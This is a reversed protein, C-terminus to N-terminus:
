AAPGPGRPRPTRGSATGPGPDTSPTPTTAAPPGDAPAGGPARRAAKAPRKAPATTAVKAATPATAPAAATAGGRPATARSSATKAGSSRAAGGERVARGPTTPPLPTGAPPSAGARTGATTTAAGRRTRPPSPLPAASGPQWLDGPPAQDLIALLEHEDGGGPMTSAASGDRHARWREAQRADRRRGLLGRAHEEARARERSPLGDLLDALMQVTTRDRVEELAVDRDALYAVLLRGAAQVRDAVMAIETRASGVEALQAAVATRVSEFSALASRRAEEGVDQQLALAHDALWGHAAAMEARLDQVARETDAQVGELAELSASELVSTTSRVEAVVHDALTVFEARAEALAGLAEVLRERDSYAEGRASAVEAAVADLRSGLSAVEAGLGSLGDAVQTSLRDAADWQEDLLGALPTVHEAVEAMRASLETWRGALETDRAAGDDAVRSVAATSATEVGRIETGIETLADRLGALEPRLVQIPEPRGALDALRAALADVTALRDAFSDQAARIAALEPWLPEAAPAASLAALGTLTEAGSTAVDTRLELIEALLEALGSDGPGPESRVPDAREAAAADRADLETHVADAIMAALSGSVGETVAQAVAASVVEAVEAGQRESELAVREATVEGLEAFVARTQGLHDELRSTTLAPDMAAALADLRAFLAGQLADLWEPVTDGFLNTPLEPVPAVGDARLQEVAAVAEAVSERTRSLETQLHASLTERVYELANALDVRLVEMELRAAEAARDSGLDDALNALQTVISALADSTASADGGTLALLRDGVSDVADELAALRPETEDDTVVGLGGDQRAEALSTGVAAPLTDAVARSVADQVLAPLVASLAATVVAPLADGVATRVSDEVQRSSLTQEPGEGIAQIRAFLDNRTGADGTPDEVM